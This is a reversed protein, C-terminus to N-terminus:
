MKRATVRNLSPAKAKRERASGLGLLFASLFVRKAMLLRYHLRLWASAKDTSSIYFRNSSQSNEQNQLSDM